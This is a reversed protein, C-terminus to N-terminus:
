IEPCHQMSRGNGLQEKSYENRAKRAVKVLLQSLFKLPFPYPACKKHAVYCGIKKNSQPAERFLKNEKSQYGPLKGMSTTYRMSLKTSIGEQLPSPRERWQGHMHDVVTDFFSSLVQHPKM